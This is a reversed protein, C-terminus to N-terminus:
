EAKLKKGRQGLMYSYMSWWAFPYVALLGQPLQWFSLSRM